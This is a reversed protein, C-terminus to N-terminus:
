ARRRLRQRPRQLPALSIIVLLPSTILMCIFIDSLARYLLIKDFCTYFSLLKVYRAPALSDMEDFFLVCPAAERARRFVDRVNKESEGIYMNLLEPGKVSMFNLGAETAVAKAVLTKGTGPPGYLLIGSRSRGLSAALAKARAVSTSVAAPANSVTVAPKAASAASNEDDDHVPADNPINILDMVEQKVNELGGVDAWRM